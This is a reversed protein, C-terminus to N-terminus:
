YGKSVTGTLADSQLRNINKLNNFVNFINEVSFNTSLTGAGPSFNGPEKCGTEFHKRPGM